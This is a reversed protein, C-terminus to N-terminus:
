GNTLQSALCGHSKLKSLKENMQNIDKEVSLDWFRSRRQDIWGDTVFKVFDDILNLGRAFVEEGRLGVNYNWCSLSSSVLIVSM